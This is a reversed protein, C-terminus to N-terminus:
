MDPGCNPCHDGECAENCCELHCSANPKHKPCDKKPELDRQIFRKLIDEAKKHPGDKTIMAEGAHEM